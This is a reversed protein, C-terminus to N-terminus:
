EIVSQFPMPAAVHIPSSLKRVQGCSGHKAVGEPLLRIQSHMNRVTGIAIASIAAAQEPRDLAAGEEEPHGEEHGIDQRADDGRSEPAPRSLGSRPM